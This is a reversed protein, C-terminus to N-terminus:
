RMWHAWLSGAIGAYVSCIFFALLKYAFVNVGQVEAALENDRIAIFARGVGTRVINKAFFTMLAVIPIIICYMQAPSTFAVGGVKPVPVILSRVGHTIGELPHAILAPIIFQAALTAMALYFGKVRLSPLGFIVGIIGASIAACPLAAWFSWGLKATLVGSTYAGVAMFAAQGLSIQGCYGTLINLGLVAILSIGILNMLNLWRGPLYLPATFLIVLGVVLLIWQLRTRLIAMDQAYSQDYTGCPRLAM